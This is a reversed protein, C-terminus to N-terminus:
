VPNGVATEELSLKGLLSITEAFNGEVISLRVVRPCSGQFLQRRYSENRVKEAVHWGISQSHYCLFFHEKIESSTLLHHRPWLSTQSPTICYRALYLCVLLSYLLLLSLCVSICWVFLCAFACVCCSRSVRMLSTKFHEVFSKLM